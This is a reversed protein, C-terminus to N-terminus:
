ALDARMKRKFLVVALSMLVAGSGIVILMPLLFGDTTFDLKVTSRAVKTCYLFPTCKSISYLVGGTGEADFWIGGIFSGLSIIVSCIGPATKENFITGFILGIAIFMLASPLCTVLTLLLSLLSIPHGVIAGIVLASVMTLIIQIEAIVLMPFVYGLIFNPSKMPSAFLRTLFSGSRDMAVGLATFLMIFTQGFVLVGGALNDIEFITVHGKPISQNVLTMIVMMVLPFAVCFIYSLPDRTMEILNRKAFYKTRNM